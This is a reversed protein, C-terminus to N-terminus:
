PLDTSKHPALIPQAKQWIKAAGYILALPKLLALVVRILAGLIGMLPLMRLVYGSGVAWLLAKEPYLQAYAAADKVSREVGARAADFNDAVFGEPSQWASPPLKERKM